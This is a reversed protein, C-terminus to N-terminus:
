FIVKQVGCKTVAEWNSFYVLFGVWFVLGKRVEGNRKKKAVLYDTRYTVRGTLSVPENLNM